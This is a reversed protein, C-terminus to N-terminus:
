DDVEICAINEYSKDELFAQIILSKNILLNALDSTRRNDTRLWVIKSPHGYLNSM